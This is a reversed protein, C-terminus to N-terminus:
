PYAVLYDRFLLVVAATVIAGGIVAVKHWDLRQM